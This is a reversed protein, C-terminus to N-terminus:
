TFAKLFKRWVSREVELLRLCELQKPTVRLLDADISGSLELAKRGKESLWWSAMRRKTPVERVAVEKTALEVLGKDRLFLLTNRLTCKNVNAKERLEVFPVGESNDSLLDLVELVGKRAFVRLDM